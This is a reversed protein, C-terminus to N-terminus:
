ASWQTAQSQDINLGLTVCICAHAIVSTSLYILSIALDNKFKFRASEGKSDKLPDEQLTEFSSTDCPSLELATEAYVAISKFTGTAQECEARNKKFAKAGQRCTGMSDECELKTGTWTNGQCTPMLGDLPATSDFVILYSEKDSRSSEAKISEESKRITQVTTKVGEVRESVQFGAAELAQQMQRSFGEETPASSCKLEVSWRSVSDGLRRRHMPSTALSQEGQVTSRNQCFQDVSGDARASVLVISSHAVLHLGTSEDIGHAQPEITINEVSNISRVPGIAPTDIEIRSNAV